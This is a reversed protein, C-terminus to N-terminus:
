EHNKEMSTGIAAHLRALSQKAQAFVKWYQTEYNYLTIQTRVLNLFDVKNVQYAALMSAVTQKAQPIIGQKFLSAQQKAQQYSAVEVGVEGQVQARTDQYGFEAQAAEAEKQSLGADQAGGFPISMSLTLSGLDARDLGTIPNSKRFGYSVGLKFDPYFDKEAVSVKAQAASIYQQQQALAPRNNLAEEVLTSEDDLEALIEDVTSPLIIALSSDRNLLANLRAEEQRRLANLQIESDLLKSLELQALLVDQQLGKGTKYKTEAVKIFQRLLVKNRDLIDLARDLYFVNWWRVQTQSLLKLKLEDLNFSAADALFRAAAEEQDLKGPFPLSQSIGIQLQTMNEQGRNFTDTPFSLAGLSVVPDPLSGMQEPVFQKGRVSESKASLRASKLVLVQAEELTLVQTTTQTPEDAQALSINALMGLGVILPFIRMSKKNCNKQSTKYSKPFSNM